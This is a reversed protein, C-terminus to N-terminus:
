WVGNIEDTAEHLREIGEARNRPQTPREEGEPTRTLPVEPGAGEAEGPQASGNSVKGRKRREDAM